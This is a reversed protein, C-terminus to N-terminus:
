ILVRIFFKIIKTYCLFKITFKRKKIKKLNTGKKQSILTNSENM